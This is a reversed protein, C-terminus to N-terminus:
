QPRHHDATFPGRRRCPVGQRGPRAATASRGTGRGRRKGADPPQKNLILVIQDLRGMVTLLAAETPTIEGGPDTGAPPEPLPLRGVLSSIWSTHKDTAERILALVDLIGMNEKTIDEVDPLSKELAVLTQEIARLPKVITEQNQEPTAHKTGQEPSPEAKKGNDRAVVEEDTDDEADTDAEGTHTDEVAAASAEDHDATNAEREGEVAAAQAKGLGPCANSRKQGGLNAQHHPDAPPRELPALDFRFEPSRKLVPDIARNTLDAVNRRPRSTGLRAYEAPGRSRGPNLM